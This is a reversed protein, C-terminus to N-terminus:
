TDSNLCFMVPSVDLTRLHVYVQHNHLRHNVEATRLRCTSQTLQLVIGDPGLVGQLLPCLSLALPIEGVSQCVHCFLFNALKM